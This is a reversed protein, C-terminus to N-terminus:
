CFKKIRMKELRGLKSQGSKMLVVVFFVNFFRWVCSQPIHRHFVRPPFTKSEICMVVVGPKPIAQDDQFQERLFNKATKFLNLSM